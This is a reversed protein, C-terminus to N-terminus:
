ALKLCVVGAVILLPCVVEAFIALLLTIHAGLHFPDEIRTLEVSYHLLKPLGHVWLM